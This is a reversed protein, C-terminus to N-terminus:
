QSSFPHFLRRYFNVELQKQLSFMLAVLSYWFMWKMEPYMKTIALLEEVAGIRWLLLFAWLNAEWECDFTKLYYTKVEQTAERVFPAKWPYDLFWPLPLKRGGDQHMVYHAMEHGITLAHDCRPKHANLVICASDPNIKILGSVKDPLETSYEVQLGFYDTFRKLKPDTEATM